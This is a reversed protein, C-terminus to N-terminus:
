VERRNPTCGNCHEMPEVDESRPRTKGAWLVLFYGLGRTHHLVFRSSVSGIWDLGAAGGDDDMTKASDRGQTSLAGTWEVKSM